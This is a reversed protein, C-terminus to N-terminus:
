RVIRGQAKTGRSLSFYTTKIGRRTVRRNGQADYSVAAEGKYVRLALVSVNTRSM